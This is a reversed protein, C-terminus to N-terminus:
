RNSFIASLNRPLIPLYDLEEVMELKMRTEEPLENKNKGDLIMKTEAEDFRIPTITQIVDQNAPCTQQCLICGHTSHHATGDLWDPFERINPIDLFKNLFTLCREANIQKREATIAQTPCANLCVSCSACQEMQELPYIKNDDCVFDSDCSDLSRILNRWVLSM